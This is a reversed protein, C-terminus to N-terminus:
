AIFVVASGFEEEVPCRGFVREKEMRKRQRWTTEKELVPRLGKSTVTFVTFSM